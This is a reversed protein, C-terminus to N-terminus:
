LYTCTFDGNKDYYFVRRIGKRRLLKTCGKCCAGTSVTGDRRVRIALIDAGRIQDARLGKLADRESHISFKRKETTPPLDSWNYGAGIVGKDKFVVAGHKYRMPSKLAQSIALPLINKEVWTRISM